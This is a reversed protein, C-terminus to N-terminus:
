EQTESPPHYEDVLVKEAGTFPVLPVIVVVVEVTATEVTGTDVVIGKTDAPVTVLVLVGVTIAAVLECPKLPPAIAPMTMPTM